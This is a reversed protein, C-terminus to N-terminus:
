AAEGIKDDSLEHYANGEFEYDQFVTANNEFTDNNQSKETTFTEQHLAQMLKLRFLQESANDEVYLLVQEKEPLHDEPVEYIMKKQYSFSQTSYTYVVLKVSQSVEKLADYVTIKKDIVKRIIEITTKGIIWNQEGFRTDTCDCLYLNWKEDRTIFVIPVEDFELISFLYFFNENGATIYTENSM